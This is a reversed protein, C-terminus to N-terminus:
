QGKEKALAADVITDLMTYGLLPTSHKVYICVPYGITGERLQSRHQERLWRYRQADKESAKVAQAARADGYALIAKRVIKDQTSGAKRQSVRADGEATSIGETIRAYEFVEWMVSQIDPMPVDDQAVQAAQAPPHAALFPLLSYQIFQRAEVVKRHNWDFSEAPAKEGCIAASISVATLDELVRKAHQELEDVKKVADNIHSAGPAAASDSAYLDFMEGGSLDVGLPEQSAALNAAFKAIAAASDAPQATPATPAAEAKKARVLSLSEIKRAFDKIPFAPHTAMVEEWAQYIAKRSIGAPLDSPPVEVLECPWNKWEDMAGDDEAIAKIKGKSSLNVIVAEANAEFRLWWHSASMQEVHFEGYGVIEDLEGSDDRRVDINSVLVVGASGDGEPQRLHAIAANASDIAERLEPWSDIEVSEAATDALKELADAVQERTMTM